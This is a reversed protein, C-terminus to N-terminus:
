WCEDVTQAFEPDTIGKRQKEEEPPLRKRKQRLGFDQRATLAKEESWKHKNTSLHKKLNIVRADCSPVPCKVKLRKNSPEM